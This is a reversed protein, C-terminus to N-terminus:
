WRERAPRPQAAVATRRRRRATVIPQDRRREGQSAQGPAQKENRQDARHEAGHALDCRECMASIRRPPSIVAPLLSPPRNPPAVEPESSMTAWNSRARLDFLAFAM